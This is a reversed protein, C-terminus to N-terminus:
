VINLVILLNLCGIHCKDSVIILPVWVVGRFVSLGRLVGDLYV